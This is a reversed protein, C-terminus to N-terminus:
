PADVCRKRREELPNSSLFLSQLYSGVDGLACVGLLSFKYEKVGLDARQRKQRRRGKNSM